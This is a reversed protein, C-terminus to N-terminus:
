ITEAFLLAPAAPSQCNMCFLIAGKSMRTVSKNSSRISKQFDM